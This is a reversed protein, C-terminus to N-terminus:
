ISLIDAQEDAAKAMKRFFKARKPDRERAAVANALYAASKESQWRQLVDEM